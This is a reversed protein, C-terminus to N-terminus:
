NMDLTTTNGTVNQPATQNRFGFVGLVYTFAGNRQNTNTNVVAVEVPRANNANKAHSNREAIIAQNETRMKNNKNASYTNELGLKDHEIYRLWETREHHHNTIQSENNSLLRYRTTPRLQTDFEHLEEASFTIWLPPINPDESVYYIGQDNDATLRVYFASYENSPLVLDKIQFVTSIAIVAAPKIRVNPILVAKLQYPDNDLLLSLPSQHASNQIHRLEVLKTVAEKVSRQLVASEMMPLRALVHLLTNGSESILPVMSSPNEIIQDLFDSLSAFNLHFEDNLTKIFQVTANVNQHIVHYREELDLLQRMRAFEEQTIINQDTTLTLFHIIFTEILAISDQINPQTIIRESQVESQDSRFQHLQEATQYFKGAALILLMKQHNEASVRGTEQQLQEKVEDRVHNPNTYAFYTLMIGQFFSGYLELFQGYGQAFYKLLFFGDTALFLNAKKIDNTTFPTSALLRTSVETMSHHLGWYADAFGDPHKTSLEQLRTKIESPRDITAPLNNNPTKLLKIIQLEAMLASLPQKADLAYDRAKSYHEYAIDFTRKGEASIARIFHVLTKVEYALFFWAAGQTISNKNLEADLVEAAQHFNGQSIHQNAENLANEYSLAQYKGYLGTLLVTVFVGAGIPLGIWPLMKWGFGAGYYLEGTVLVAGETALGSVAATGVTLGLHNFSAGLDYIDAKTLSTHQRDVLVELINPLYKRLGDISRFEQIVSEPNNTNPCKRLLESFTIFKPESDPIIANNKLPNRATYTFGHEQYEIYLCHNRVTGDSAEKLCLTYVTSLRAKSSVTRVVELERIPDIRMYDNMDTPRTSYVDPIVSQRPVHSAISILNASSPSLVKNVHSLVLNKKINDLSLKSKVNIFPFVNRFIEDPILEPALLFQYHNNVLILSIIKQNTNLHNTSLATRKIITQFQNYIEINVECMRSLAIIVIDNFLAEGNEIASIAASLHEKSSAEFIQVCNTEELMIKRIHEASRKRLHTHIFETLLSPYNDQSFTRLQNVLTAIKKFPLKGFLQEMRLDIENTDDGDNDGCLPLLLALAFASYLHNNDTPVPIRQLPM